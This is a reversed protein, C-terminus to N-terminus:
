REDRVTLGSREVGDPLEDEDIGVCWIYEGSEREVVVTDNYSLVFSVPEHNLWKHIQWGTCFRGDSRAYVTAVVV